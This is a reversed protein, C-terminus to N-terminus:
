LSLSPCPLLAHCFRVGIFTMTQKHREIKESWARQSRGVGHLMVHRIGSWLSAIGHHGPIVQCVGRRCCGSGVVVVHTSLGTPQGEGRALSTPRDGVKSLSSVFTLPSSFGVGVHQFVRLHLSGLASTDFVPVICTRRRRGRYPKSVVAIVSFSPPYLGVVSPVVWRRLTCGLSLPYLGVVSPVVWRHLTHGLM